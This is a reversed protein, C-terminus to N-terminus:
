PTGGTTTSAPTATVPAPVEPTAGATTGQEPPTLYTTVSFDAQVFPFPLAQTSSLSFGNITILRGDVKVKSNATKVLSDLGRIFDAVHSFRGIFKLNYPMVDLGAPGISSGLPLTAAAAETPAAPAPASAPTASSPSSEATAPAAEPTAVESESAGLEIERFSIRAKGSIHTMSVLLSATEDDSPVAKGLVVLKQYDHPFGKRAALAQDAEARDAALSQKLESATHGLDSAEQRKPGLLLMWFGIAFAAVALMAVITRNTASM